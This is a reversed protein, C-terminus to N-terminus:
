INKNKLAKIRNGFYEAYSDYLPNKEVSIYGIAKETERIAKGIEGTSEYYESLKHTMQILNELSIEKQKEAANLCREGDYLYAKESLRTFAIDPLQAVAKEASQIDGKKKYAYASFRLADYRLSENETTSIIRSSVSIAEDSDTIFYLLKCLLIDNDPYETLANEILKKGEEPNSEILSMAKDIINQIKEETM